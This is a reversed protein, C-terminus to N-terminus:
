KNTYDLTISGDENYIVTQKDIGLSRKYKLYEEVSSFSRKAKKIVEKAKEADDKLLEKLLGVQFKASDVCANVADKIYFNSGHTTGIAGCAYAHISPFLSSIDGMDTSSAFFPLIRIQDKDCLKGMVEKAVANLNEDDYMAESGPLDCIHVKAGFAASVASIARNVKLNADKLAKPSAGRVYGEMTVTDPVANVADGGKTIISHVRIHDDDKFTERLSNIAVIANSAVNLANVGLHPHAGAHASVGKFVVTKRIVGNHGTCICFKENNVASTTHVMFALDVDDFYGRRIFEPKGSTFEIVGKEVLQKRKEVEIGEEAPVVCLKIKGCLGDLAGQEKLAAAIGIMAACQAHHGCVHVAGTDKNSEPHSACILADLEALVLITPGVKGTDIVTYFGTIDNPKILTYGLDEFAKIMYANTKHEFYGTEPIKWLDREAKLITDSHKQVATFLNQM